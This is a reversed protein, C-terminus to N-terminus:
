IDWGRRHLDEWASRIKEAQEPDSAGMVPLLRCCGSSDTAAECIRRFFSSYGEDEKMPIRGYYVKGAKALRRLVDEMDYKEPNGFNVGLVKETSLCAELLFSNYGCFHVYAGGTFDLQRKLSPITFEEILNPGLLTSTDESFKMGGCSRPIVLQNYHAVIKDSGPIVKLCENVGLEIATCSLDLLHNIFPPDDYLDYFFNDGYVLHAIDIADQLDLPFVYAGTGEIMEAQYVMHELGLKFEDTLKIDSPKLKKLTEKDLHNIIWPMREDDFLEPLIGPFLSPYIGCGMNARVSPVAQMNGLTVSVMSKMQSILMKDKDFHIERTTFVPWDKSSPPPTCNLLLPQHKPIRGEWVACQDEASLPYDNARKKVLDYLEEYVAQLKAEM